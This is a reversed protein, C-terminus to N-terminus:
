RGPFVQRRMDQLKTGTPSDPDVAIAEDLLRRSEALRQQQYRMQAQLSKMAQLLEGQLGREQIVGEVFDFAGDWDGAMMLPELPRLAVQLARSERYGEYRARLGLANDADAAIIADVEEPFADIPPPDGLAELAQAYRKAREAGQAAAAAELQADRQAKRPQLSELHKVYAAAGGPQYGTVAYPRGQADALVITPFGVVGLRDSWAANQEATEPALAHQRPFDLEVLVFQDRVADAFAPTDFVERKLAMCPPCWDSGTFDLLLDKGQARAQAMAADMDDAWVAPQAVAAATFAAFVAFFMVSLLRTM